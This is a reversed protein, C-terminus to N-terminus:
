AAPLTVIMQVAAVIVAVDTFMDAEAEIEILAGETDISPGRCTVLSM